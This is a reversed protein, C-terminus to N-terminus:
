VKLSDRVDIFAKLEAQRELLERGLSTSTNKNNVKLRRVAGVLNRGAYASGLLAILAVGAFVCAIILNRNTSVNYIISAFYGGLSAFVVFSAFVCCFIILAKNLDAKFKVAREAKKSENEENLSKVKARLSAINQELSAGAKKYLGEKVEATTYKKAGAASEAAQAIQTYDTFDRTYVRMRLAYINGNEDDLEEAQALYELATSYRGKKVDEEAKKTLGNAKERKEEREKKNQELKLAYQEPTMSVADEDIEYNEPADFAVEEFSGQEKGGQEGDDKVLEQEGDENIKLRYKRDKDEDILREEAM